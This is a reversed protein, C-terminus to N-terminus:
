AANYLMAIGGQVNEHGHLFITDVIAKKGGGKYPLNVVRPERTYALFASEMDVSFGSRHTFETDTGDAANTMLFPTLHLLHEGSDLVLKDIVRVLTKSDAEQNYRRISTTNAINDVYGAFNTFKKKLHVGLFTHMAYTGKRTIYSSACADLFTDETFTALSAGASNGMIQTAPTRFATPVPLTTQASASLWSFIGRTEYPATTGNELLTDSNSLCRMEQIRKVAVFADAVQEAFEGKSVGAVEAEEAFDSVGPNYWSKQAYVALEERPNSQFTTADKGDNVGGHGVRPYAKVQWEHKAQKPRMGRRIMSLYPCGESEINAILNALSRPHGKQTIELIVAM